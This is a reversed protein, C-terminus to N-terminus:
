PNILIYDSRHLVGCHSSGHVLHVYRKKVQDVPLCDEVDLLADTHPKYWDQPRRKPM